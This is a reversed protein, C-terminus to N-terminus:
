SISGIIIVFLHIAVPITVTFTDSLLDVYVYRQRDCNGWLIMKVGFSTFINLYIDLSSYQSRKQGKLLLFRCIGGM